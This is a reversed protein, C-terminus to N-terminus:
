ESFIGEILEQKINKKWTSLQQKIRSWKKHGKICSKQCRGFLKQQQQKKEKKLQEDLMKELMNSLQTANVTQESELDMTVQKNAEKQEQKQNITAQLANIKANPRERQTKKRLDVTMKSFLETIKTKVIIICAYDTELAKEKIEDLNIGEKLCTNIYYENTTEKTTFYCHKITDM